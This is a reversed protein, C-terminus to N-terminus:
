IMKLNKGLQIEGMGYMYTWAYADMHSSVLGLVQLDHMISWQCENMLLHHMMIHSTHHKHM